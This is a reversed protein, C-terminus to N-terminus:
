GRRRVRGYRGLGAVAIALMALALAGAGRGASACGAGHDSGEAPPGDESQGATCENEIELEAVREDCASDAALAVYEALPIPPDEISQSAIACVVQDGELRWAGGWVYSGVRGDTFRSVSVVVDDGIALEGFQSTYVDHLADGITADVDTSGGVHELLVVDISPDVSTVDARFFATPAPAGCVDGCTPACDAQADPIFLATTALAILPVLLLLLKLQTM